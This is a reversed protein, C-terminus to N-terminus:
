IIDDINCGGCVIIIISAAVGFWCEDPATAGGGDIIVAYSQHLTMAAAVCSQSTLHSAPPWGLDVSMLVSVVSYCRWWRYIGCLNSATDKRVIWASM